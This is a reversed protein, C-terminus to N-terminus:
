GITGSITGNNTVTVTHGNKRICYGGAGGAGGPASPSLWGQGNNGSTGYAGGVGGSVGGNGGAGGAGGGSTTADSGNSAGGEGAGGSGNPAGGGGGGGSRYQPEEWGEEVSSAGGGGGGGGRAQGGSEITVSMPLRCHIADGGAGGPSGAGYSGAAGGNGGGGRVVGGNKVVLTLTITYPSGPWTGSDIAIGGGANGTITVANGVEFTINANQAGNYGATNALTRLNVPGTGTIQITQTFTNPNVTVTAQSQHQGGPGNVTLTYTTTSSPSVNTAGGSASVSGVGNDISASTANSATWTLTSANGVNVSTPNASLSSTPNPHVVVSAQATAPGNLGQAAITYTTNSAPSVVVSGGNTPTVAGVGQDIAASTANNTTWTLTTSQGNAISTPNASLTAQVSSPPSQVLSTRNGAPDYSYTITAGNNYTVTKLRGLEDYTYIVTEAHAEDRGLLFAQASAGALFQALLSRRRIM